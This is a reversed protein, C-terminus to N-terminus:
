PSISSDIPLITMVKNVYSYVLVVNYLETFKMKSPSILTNIKLDSFSKATYNYWDPTGSQEYFQQYNAEYLYKQNGFAVDLTNWWSLYGVLMIDGLVEVNLKWVSAKNEQGMIIYMFKGEISLIKQISLDSIDYGSM